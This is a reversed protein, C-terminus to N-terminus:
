KRSPLFPLFWVGAQSAILGSFYPLLVVSGRSLMLVAMLGIGLLKMAEAVFMNRVILRSERAFRRRFFCATFVVNPILFTLGGLVASRADVFSVCGWALVALALGLVQLKLLRYGFEQIM